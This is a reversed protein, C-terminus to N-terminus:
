QLETRRSPQTPQCRATPVTLDDQCENAHHPSAMIANNVLHRRPLRVRRCRGPGPHSPDPGGGNDQPDHRGALGHCAAARGDGRHGYQIRDPSPRRSRGLPVHCSGRMWRAVALGSWSRAPVVGAARPSVDQPRAAPGIRTYCYHPVIMGRSSKRRISRVHEHMMAEMTVIVTPDTVACAASVVSVSAHLPVTVSVIIPSSFIGSGIEVPM